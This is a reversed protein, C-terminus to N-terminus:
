KSLEELRKKDKESLKDYGKRNIKDLLKDVERQKNVKEENYKDDITMNRSVKTASQKTIFKPQKLFFFIVLAILIFSVIEM